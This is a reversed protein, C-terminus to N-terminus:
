GRSGSLSKKQTCCFKHRGRLMVYNYDFKPGFHEFDVAMFLIQIVHSVDKCILWGKGKSEEPRHTSHGLLLLERNANGPVWEPCTCITSRALVSFGGTSMGAWSPASHQMAKFRCPVLIAVADSFTLRALTSTIEGFFLKTCPFVDGETTTDNTGTAATKHSIWKTNGCPVRMLIKSVDAPWSMCSSLRPEWVAFM